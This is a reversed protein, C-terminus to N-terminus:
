SSVIKRAENRFSIINKPPTIESKYEASLMEWADDFLHSHLLARFTIISQGGKMRWCMGSLKLRQSVLTKCTAEVIGSGIPFHKASLEEYRCRHKNSKFYNLETKLLKKKPNKKVLAGLKRIVKDIGRLDHRLISRYKYFETNANQSNVGYAMEFAKKLHEAAHYFDLVSLGKPLEEELFTWNDRAGDAVKVLQLDPNCKLAYEIEKALFSKLTVKKREPMRGYRRTALAEGEDDYYTISGCSAEEYRSDGPLVKGGQMPILVGDLSIGVTVAEEPVEFQVRLSEEFIERKEEWCAGLKKPLRDLSSRSPQMAGLEKFLKEGEYPTLSSVVFLAQKAARPTWQGEIMGARLDMPCITGHQGKTRYLSREVRVPGVSSTYTNECRVAQRYDKGDFSIVPLNIDYQSLLEELVKREAEIFVAHLKAEKEEFAIHQSTEELHMQIEQKLLELSNNITCIPRKYTSTAPM